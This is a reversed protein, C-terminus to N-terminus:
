LKDSLTVMVEMYNWITDRHEQKLETWYIKIQNIVKFIEEEEEIEIEFKKNIETVENFNNKLFFNEDKADIEKRYLKLYEKFTNSITRPNYKKLLLLAQKYLKFKPEQPIVLICDDILDIVINNFATLLSM